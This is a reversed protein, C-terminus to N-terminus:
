ETNIFSTTSVRRDYFSRNNNNNNNHSAKNCTNLMLLSLQKLVQNIISKFLNMSIVLHLFRKYDGYLMPINIVQPVFGETSVKWFGFVCM